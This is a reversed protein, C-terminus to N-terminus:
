NQKGHFIRIQKDPLFRLEFSLNPVTCKEHVSTKNIRGDIKLM